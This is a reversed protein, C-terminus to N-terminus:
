THVAYYIKRHKQGDRGMVTGEHRVIGGNYSDSQFYFGKVWTDPYIIFREDKGYNFSDRFFKRIANRGLKDKCCATLMQNGSDTFVLKAKPKEASLREIHNVTEGQIAARVKEAPLEFEHIYGTVNNRSDPHLLTLRFLISNRKKTMCLYNGIDSDLIYNEGSFLRNLTDKFVLFRMSRGHIIDFTTIGIFSPESPTLKVLIVDKFNSM